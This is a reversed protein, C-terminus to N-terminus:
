AARGNALLMGPAHAPHRQQHAQTADVSQLTPFHANRYLVKACRGAGRQARLPHRWLLPGRRPRRCSTCPHPQLCGGSCAGRRGSRTAGSPAAGGAGYRAPTEPSPVRRGQRRRRGLLSVLLLHSLSCRVPKIPHLSRQQQAQQPPAAGASVAAFEPHADLRMSAGDLAAAGHTGQMNSEEVEM